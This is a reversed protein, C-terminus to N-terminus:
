ALLERIDDASLAGGAFDGGNMVSAFLEAKREKLAMVREEITDTAVFRYVMVQRTQGIRHVRDVAQAETAPNWWPDLLICYDAETLNLGFGGAKLSILFISADGSRFADIVKDRQRTRGDLYCYTHGAAELRQRARSLFRTFQSFVLVRHGDAVIEEIMESLVDLKSSTVREHDADILSVDLSAQRLLTLSRLIEFRNKRVDDILGLVKQRERALYAQYLRRHSPNLEIERVIELKEPLEPAVEEKTRRLMVPRLRRRLQALRQVDREKEIPARYYADFREPAAFLGPVTIALLSWLEMLNNEMPTGTLAVKYPTALNAICHFTKSARNKAFQAEDIFLGSWEVDAYQDYDLRFLAYSTIVIDVPGAIEAITTERRRSTAQITAVSLTPAFHRCEVAWNDVVSTPAIVLFPGGHDARSRVLCMLALAQITKGLGMDDALVGGMRSDYRAALWQYGARQYPRLRAMLSEPPEYDVHPQALAQVALRFDHTQEDVDALAEFEQWLGGQFRSLRVTSTPSDHLARAETICERLQRLEDRDLSFFAGSPLVLYTRGQALAVFLDQFPVPENEISVEVELDFWDGNGSASGSLRVVPASLVERFVPPVGHWDILVGPAGSVTALTTTVFRIADLGSLQVRPVLSAGFSTTTVLQAESVLLRAVEGILASHADNSIALGPAALEARWSSDAHGRFWELQLLGADFALSLILTPAAKPPVTVSGDLSVLEIGAPFHPYYERFFRESEEGGVRLPGADLLRRWREDLPTALTGLHMTSKGTEGDWWLVGHAPQGIVTAARTAGVDRGVLMTRLELDGNRERVDVVVDIPDSVVDIPRPPRLDSLLVVGMDRADRLLDWFRRSEFAELWLEDYYTVRWRPVALQGLSWFERLLGLGAETADSLPHGYGFRDLSAWSIGSSIWRGAPSFRIPRLRIGSGDGGADPRGRSTHATAEFLLGVESVHSRTMGRDLVGDLVREWSSGNMPARSTIAVPGPSPGSRSDRLEKLATLVLAVVHKCNFSVPCSCTGRIFVSAGMASDVRVRVEYPQAATGQVVGVIEDDGRWLVDRVRHANAYAVGRGYTASDVERRM